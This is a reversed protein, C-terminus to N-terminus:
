PQKKHSILYERLLAALDEKEPVDCLQRMKRVRYKVAGETLYCNQAMHDYSRGEMLMNLLSLDLEDCASLLNELKLMTQLESDRYFRDQAPPVPTPAPLNPVSHPLSWQVTATLESIQPQKKALDAISLATKGFRGYNMDVSTIRGEYYRCLLTQACSIIPISDQGLRRCLSIAAFGNTCIVADFEARRAAFAEYCAALSGRNEFLADPNACELLFAEARSRDGVSDPNIGYLAIRSGHTQKLAATLQRMSGSIDSCVCHYRGGPIRRLSNCLLIPVLGLANCQGVAGSLWDPRTGIVFVTNGAEPQHSFSFDERRKKLELTLGQVIQKCWVSDAYSPELLLQYM